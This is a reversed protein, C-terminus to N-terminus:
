INAWITGASYRTIEHTKKEIQKQWSIKKGHSGWTGGLVLEDDVDDVRVENLHLLVRL